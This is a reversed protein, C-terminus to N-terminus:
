EAVLLPHPRGPRRQDRDLHEPHHSTRQLLPLSLRRWLFLDPQKIFLTERHALIQYPISSSLVSDDRTPPKIIFNRLMSTATAPAQRSATVEKAWIVASSPM